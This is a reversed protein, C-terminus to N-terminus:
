KYHEEILQSFAKVGEYAISLCKVDEETIEDSSVPVLYITHDYTKPRIVDEENLHEEPIEIFSLDFMGLPFHERILYIKGDVVKGVAISQPISYYTNASWFMYYTENENIYKLGRQYDGIVINHRYCDCYELNKDPFFKKLSLKEYFYEKIQEPELYKRWTVYYRHRSKFEAIKRENFTM